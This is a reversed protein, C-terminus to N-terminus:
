MTTALFTQFPKNTFEGGGDTQFAKIKLSLMNEVYAKFRLFIDFVQFKTALPYLWVYKTCDDIFFIYYRYGSVLQHFLHHVGFTM